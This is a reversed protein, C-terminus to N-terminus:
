VSEENLFETVAQSVVKAITAALKEEVYRNGKNESVKLVPNGDADTESSIEASVTVNEEMPITDFLRNIKAELVEAKYPM